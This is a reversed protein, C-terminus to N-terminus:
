GPTSALLDAYVGAPSASPIAAMASSIKASDVTGVPSTLVDFVSASPLMAFAGQYRARLAQLKDERGIMALAIAHRLITAQAVESLGAKAPLSAGTATALGNWDRRRWLIEARIAAGDPVDALAAFAADTKGLLALAVAEVRQRDWIMPQPYTPGSSDRLAEIAKAPDGALIRLMAVRVSLPGKAVDTARATLQYQLLEAARAYLGASQLRDALHLALLDGDAGAPTIERYDWFLGAVDPLPMKSDPALAASLSQQLQSLVPAAGAGLNCYRLLTSGTRLIVVPDHTAQAQALELLLVRREFDGGRWGFRIAGLQRVAAAPALRRQAIGITALGLAAEASEGRGATTSVKTFQARANAYDGLGLYARGRLVRADDDNNQRKLWHLAQSWRGAALAARIAAVAFPRREDPPRHNIAPLACHVQGLAEDGKGSDALARLRWACAEANGLLAPGSLVSLAASAQGLGAFTAGRALQFSPVLLLDPDDAAMVQLVGLAESFRDKGILSRALGWRAAQRTAPTTRALASWADSDALVVWAGGNNLGPQATLIPAFGPFRPRQPLPAPANAAAVVAASPTPSPIAPASVTAAPAPAIAPKTSHPAATASALAVLSVLRM